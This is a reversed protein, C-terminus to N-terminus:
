PEVLMPTEADEGGEEGEAEGALGLVSRAELTTMLADVQHLQSILSHKYQPNVLGHMM